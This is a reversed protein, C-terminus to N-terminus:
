AGACRIDGPSQIGHMEPSFIPFITICEEDIVDEHLDVAPPMIESSGSVPVSFSDIDTQLYFPIISCHFL